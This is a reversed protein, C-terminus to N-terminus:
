TSCHCILTSACRSTSVHSYLSFLAKSHLNLGIELACINNLRTRTCFVKPNNAIEDILDDSFYSPYAYLIRMWKLGDIKGLERMLSALNGGDKRDMGYQNTDEAILNLEKVGTSVLYKAEEM